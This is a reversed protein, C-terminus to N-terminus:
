VSALIYACAYCIYIHASINHECTCLQIWSSPLVPFCINWCRRKRLLCYLPLSKVWVRSDCRKDGSVHMCFGVERGAAAPLVEDIRAGEDTGTLLDVRTIVMTGVGANLPLAEVPNIAAELAGIGEGDGLMATEEGDKDAVGLLYMLKKWIRLPRM